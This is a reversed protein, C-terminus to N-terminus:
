DHSKAKNNGTVHNLRVYMGPLKWNGSPASKMLLNLNHDMGMICEKKGTESKVKDLTNNVHDIFPDECTNPSCYLSGIVIHKGNKATVKICTSEIEKEKSTERQRHSICERLLISTGGGKHNTRYNAVHTYHPINVLGVTKQNLPNWM